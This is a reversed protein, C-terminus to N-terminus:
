CGHTEVHDTYARLMSSKRERAQQLEAQIAELDGFQNAIVAVMERTNLALIAAMTGSLERFLQAKEPCTLLRPEPAM